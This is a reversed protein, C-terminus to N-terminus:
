VCRAVCPLANVAPQLQMNWVFGMVGLRANRTHDLKCLSRRVQERERQEQHDTTNTSLDLAACATVSSISTPSRVNHSRVCCIYTWPSARLHQARIQVPHHAQREASPAGCLAHAVQLCLPPANAYAGYAGMPPESEPTM